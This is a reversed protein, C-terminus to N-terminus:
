FRPKEEGDQQSVFVLEAAHPGFRVLAAPKPALALLEEDTINRVKIGAVATVIVNATPGSAVQSAPSLPQTNVWAAPALPQTLVLAYPKASLSARRPGPVSEHWLLLGAAAVAALVPLAKRAQRFQRRRRARRLTEGLLGERFDGAIGEGLVDNLLRENHRSDTM